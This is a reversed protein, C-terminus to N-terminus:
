FQSLKHTHTDTYQSLVVCLVCCMATIETLNPFSKVHMFFSKQFRSIAFNRTYIMQHATFSFEIDSISYFCLSFLLSQKGGVFLQSQEQEKEDSSSCFANLFINQTCFICVKNLKWTITIIIIIKCQQTSTCLKM